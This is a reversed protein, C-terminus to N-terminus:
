AFDKLQQSSSPKGAPGSLLIVRNAPALNRTYKSIEAQKLNVYTASMLVIRTQESCLPFPTAYILFRERKVALKVKIQETQLELERWRLLESSKLDAGLGKCAALKEESGATVFVKVGLHKAIQIAFTGIGSSGGHIATKNSGAPPPAAASFLIKDLSENPVYEYVLLKEDAGHACYGLLNIVNRHQVRSLLNAENKFEGAGQRSGAGLRKVAVERGDPLRGLYVPGFGGRKKERETEIQIPLPRLYNNGRKTSISTLRLEGSTRILPDPCPLESGRSTEIKGAFLSEEIDEPRLLEDRVKQALSRCAQVIDRRGSYSIALTLDLQSNNRTAEETDRTTRRLSAPLRSCDGIVRLCTGDRLFEAVSNHIAREFLGMLFDVEAKPRSWNEHSFAFATLARIGWARSLRVTELLARRGAEHGFAPPMGRARAWRSNGDMVVAVHRPLSEPRLGRLLLSKAAARM